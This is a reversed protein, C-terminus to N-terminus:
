NFNIGIGTLLVFRKSTFDYGPGVQLLGGAFGLVLGGVVSAKSDLFVLGSISYQTVWKQSAEDYQNHQFGAGVGGALATGDSISATVGVLPRISNQILPATASGAKLLNKQGQTPLPIPKFFSQASAAFSFCLAFLSIFLIKKSM